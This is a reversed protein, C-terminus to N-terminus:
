IKHKFTTVVKRIENAAKEGTSGEKSPLGYMELFEQNDVDYHYTDDTFYEELESLFSDLESSCAARKSLLQEAHKNYNVLGTFSFVPKRTTLAQLITTFPRDLIIIDAFALLESFTKERSIVQIHDFGEDQVFLKIPSSNAIESPHLKVIISLDEYKGLLQLLAKQTRWLLSDSFPPPSSVYQSNQLYVDTAYLVIKKNNSHETEESKENLIKEISSSGVSILETGYKQADLNYSEIVGDGFALHADSNMLDIYNIFPHKEMAGYGGHQWTIVPIGCNHAACTVSNAVCTALTSAIVSEIKHKNILEMGYQVVRISVDTLQKVVFEFRDRVIPFYDVHECIFFSRFIQNEKLDEWAADMDGFESTKTQNIWDLNDSIRYIPGINNQLLDNISNDWNYGSGYLIVPIRKRSGHTRRILYSLGVHGNKEINLALDFLCPHTRLWPTVIEKAHQIINNNKIHITNDAVSDGTAQITPLIKVTTNWGDQSLLRSYLSENNDFSIYPASKFPGFPCINTEYVFVLDPNETDILKSLQFIRTTLVCYITIIHRITYAAPRVNYEVVVSSYKKITNDVLDCLEEVKDYNKLEMQYLENSDYYDEMIRFKINRRELEYM